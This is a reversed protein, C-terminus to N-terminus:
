RMLSPRAQQVICKVDLCDAFIPGCVMLKEAFVLIYGYIICDIGVGWGPHEALTYMLGLLWDSTFADARGVEIYIYREDNLQDDLIFFDNDFGEATAWNGLPESEGDNIPCELMPGVTGFKRCCRLVSNRVTQYVQWPLDGEPYPNPIREATYHEITLSEGM